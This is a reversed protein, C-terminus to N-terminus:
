FARLYQGPIPNPQHLERAAQLPWYPNRLSARGVLVLDAKEAQIIEEAQQPTTILGVAVTAIGVERRITEAFPVQYGPGTVGPPTAINGGSSCDVLDVGTGEQRIIRVAPM